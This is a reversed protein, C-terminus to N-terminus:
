HLYCCIPRLTTSCTMRTSFKAPNEYFNDLTWNKYTEILSFIFYIGQHIQALFMALHREKWIVQYHMKNQRSFLTFIIKKMLEFTKDLCNLTLLCSMLGFDMSVTTTNKINDEFMKPWYFHNQYLIHIQELNLIYCGIEVQKYKRIKFM